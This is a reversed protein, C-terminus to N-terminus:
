DKNVNVIVKVSVGDTNSNRDSKFSSIKNEYEKKLNTFEKRAESESLNHIANIRLWNVADEEENDEIIERKYVVLKYVDEAVQYMTIKFNGNKTITGKIPALVERVYSVVDDSSMLEDLM